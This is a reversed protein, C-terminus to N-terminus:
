IAAGPENDSCDGADDLAATENADSVDVTDAVVGVNPGATEDAPAVTVVLDLMALRGLPCEVVTEDGASRRVQCRIGNDSVSRIADHAHTGHASRGILERLMSFSEESLRAGHIRGDEAACALLDAAVRERAVRQLKRKRELHERERRRDRIPSASGRPVTDGHERLSVPVAARPAESWPTATPVPDDADSAPTGLRRSSGLGFAAAAIQHAEEVTAARDFFGALRIFDSRRSAAGVGLRSLRSVNATLTRVAALAQRTLQDLRSPKGPTAAFWAALHRWDDAETGQLRRVAVSGALGASDVRAALGADLAPLLVDLRPLIQELRRSLPPIMREIETLQESVYDVLVGAFFQVQEPNLDYRSQWENLEAFFKTLETTFREHIDFVTRVAASLDGAADIDESSGTIQDHLADLARHLDRLRAAQVDGIEDAAALVSEVLDFVEQGQRTILYRNRRRYYDELSSPNGVSSSVTLNGWRRLSELRDRATDPDIGISAAVDDPTFEAFFTGAFVGLIMRYGQWEDVSLYRFLLRADDPEAGKAQLGAAGDLVVEGACSGAAGDLVVEGACPGAAGNSGNEASNAPESPASRPGTTM